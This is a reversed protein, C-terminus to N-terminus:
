VIEAIASLDDLRIVETGRWQLRQVHAPIPVCLCQVSVVPERRRQWIKLTRREIRPTAQCSGESQAVEIAHIMTEINPLVIAAQMLSHSTASRYAMRATSRSRLPEVAKVTKAVSAELARTESQIESELDAKEQQMLPTVREILDLDAETQQIEQEVAQVHATFAATKALNAKNSEANWVFSVFAIAFYVTSGLLLTAAADTLVIDLIQM